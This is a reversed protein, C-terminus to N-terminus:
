GFVLLSLLGMCDVGAVVTAGLTIALACSSCGL